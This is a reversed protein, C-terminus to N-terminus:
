EPMHTRQMGIIKIPVRLRFGNVYYHKLETVSLVCLLCPTVCLYLSLAILGEITM